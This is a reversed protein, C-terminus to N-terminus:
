HGDLRYYMCSDGFPTEADGAQGSLAKVVGETM